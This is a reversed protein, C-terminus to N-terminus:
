RPQTVFVVFHTLIKYEEESGTTHHHDPGIIDLNQVHKAITSYPANLLQIFEETDQDDDEDDFFMLYADIVFVTHYFLWQRAQDFWLRSVLSCNSLILYREKPPLTEDYHLGDIITLQLELPITVSSGPSRN